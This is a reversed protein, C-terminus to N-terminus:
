PCPKVVSPISARKLFDRYDKVWFYGRDDEGYMPFWDHDFIAGDDLRYIVIKRPEDDLLSSLCDRLITGWFGVRQSAMVYRSDPSWHIGWEIRRGGMMPKIKMTTTDIATARGDASRFAIWLGDPSWSPASGSAIPRSKSSLVDYIMVRGQCDFTFANGDPSWSISETGCSESISTVVNTKKDALSLGTVWRPRNESANLFGTGPAKYSADFAVRRGDSSVGLAHVDMVSGPLQWPTINPSEVIVPSPCSSESNNRIYHNWVVVDSTSGFWATSLHPTGSFDQSSGDFTVVRVPIGGWHVLALGETASRRKLEQALEEARVCVTCSLLVAAIRASARV